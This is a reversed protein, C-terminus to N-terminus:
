KDIEDFLQRIDIDLANSIISLTAIPFGKNKRLSEIDCIYDRTLDCRDALEQQTLFNMKRYKKINRRIIDYYYSDNVVLKEKM